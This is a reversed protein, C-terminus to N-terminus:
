RLRLSAPYPRVQDLIREFDAINRAGDRRVKDADPGQCGAWSDIYGQEYIIAQNLALILVETKNRRTM